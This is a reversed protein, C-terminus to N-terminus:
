KYAVNAVLGIPLTREKEVFYIFFFPVGIKLM